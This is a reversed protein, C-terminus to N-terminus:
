EGAQGPAKSPVRTLPATGPWGRRAPPSGSSPPRPPRRPPPLLPRFPLRPPRNPGRWPGRRPRCPLPRRQRRLPPGPPPPPAAPLAEGPQGIYGVVSQVPVTQGEGVLIKLLTGEHFSEVEMNSKDTEIEFLVEGKAIKDGEKKRWAIIACEETMQGPKPM